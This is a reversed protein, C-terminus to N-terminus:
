LHVILGFIGIGTGSHICYMGCSTFLAKEVVFM